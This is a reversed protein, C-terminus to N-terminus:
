SGAGSRALGARSGSSAASPANWGQGERAGDPMSGCMKAAALERGMVFLRLSYMASSIVSVLWVTAAPWSRAKMSRM